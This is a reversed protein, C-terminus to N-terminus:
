SNTSSIGDAFNSLHVNDQISFISSNFAHLQINTTRGGTFQPTPTLM